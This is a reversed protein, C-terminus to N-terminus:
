ESGRLRNQPRKTLWMMTIAGGVVFVAFLIPVVFRDAPHDVIESMARRGTVISRITYFQFNECNALATLCLYGLM